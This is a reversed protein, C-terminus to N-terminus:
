TIRCQLAVRTFRIRDPRAGCLHQHGLSDWTSFCGLSRLRGGCARTRAAAEHAKCWARRRPRSGAFCFSRYQNPTALVREVKDTSSLRAKMGTCMASGRLYDLCPPRSIASKIYNELLQLASDEQLERAKRLNDLWEPEEYSIAAQYSGASDGTYEHQAHSGTPSSHHTPHTGAERRTRM